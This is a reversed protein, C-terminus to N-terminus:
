KKHNKIIFLVIDKETQNLNRFDSILTQEEETNINSVNNYSTCGIFYDVSTSFYDAIKILTTIDPEVGQNEYKNISQQSVGIVDALQQQSIGHNKRLCKLNRIM